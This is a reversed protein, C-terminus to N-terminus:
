VPRVDVGIGAIYKKFAGFDEDDSYLTVTKSQDAAVKAAIALVKTDVAGDPPGGGFLRGNAKKRDQWGTKDGDSMDLWARWYMRMVRLSDDYSIKIGRQQESPIDKLAGKIQSVVHSHDQHCQMRSLFADLNNVIEGKCAWPVIVEGDVGSGGALRAAFYAKNTVSTPLSCGEACMAVLCPMAVNTDVVAIVSRDRPPQASAGGGRAIEEYLGRYEPDRRIGEMYHAHADGFRGLADLARGICYHDELRRAKCLCVAGYMARAREAERRREFIRGTHYLAQADYYDSVSAREFMGLAGDESTDMEGINATYMNVMGGLVLAEHHGADAGLAREIRYLADNYHSIAMHGEEFQRRRGERVSNAAIAALVDPSDAGGSPQARKFCDVAERYRGLGYLARAMADWGAHDDPMPATRGFLEVAEEFRGERSLGSARASAAAQAAREARRRREEEERRRERERRKLERNREATADGGGAARGARRRRGAEEEARRREEERAAQAIREAGARRREAGAKIAERAKEALAAARGSKRNRSLAQRLSRLADDYRREDGGRGLMYSALAAYYLGDSNAPRSSAAAKLCAAAEGDRGAKSLAMGALCSIRADKSGAAGGGGLLEAAEAYRGTRCLAHARGAEGAGCALDDGGDCCAEGAGAREYAEAAEGDRGMAECAMGAYLWAASCQPDAECAKRCRDYAEQHRGTEYLARAAVALAAPHDAAAGGASGLSELAREHRDDLILALCGYALPLPDGPAAGGGRALREFHNAAKAAKGMRIYLRGRRVEALRREQDGLMGGPAKLANQCSKLAESHRGLAELSAARQAHVAWAGARGGAIAADCAGVAEDHRGAKALAAAEEAAKEMAAPGGGGAEEGEKAAEEGEDETKQQPYEYYGM